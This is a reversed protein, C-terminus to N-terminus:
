DSRLQPILLDTVAEDFGFLDGFQNELVRKLNENSYKPARIGDLSIISQKITKEFVVPGEKELIEVAHVAGLKPKSPDLPDPQTLCLALIGGISTGAVCDFM